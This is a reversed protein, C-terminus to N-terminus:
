SVSRTRVFRGDCFHDISPAAYTGQFVGRSRRRGSISKWTIGRVRVNPRAPRKRRRLPTATGASEHCTAGEYDNLLGHAYRTAPSTRYPVKFQAGVKPVLPVATMVTVTLSPWLWPLVKERVKVTVTLGNGRIEAM